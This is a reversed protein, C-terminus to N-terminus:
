TQVREKDAQRKAQEREDEEIRAVFVRMRRVAEPVFLLSSPDRDPKPRPADADPSLRGVDQHGLRSLLNDICLWEDDSLTFRSLITRIEHRAPEVDQHPHEPPLAARALWGGRFQRRAEEHRDLGLWPVADDIFAEDLRQSCDACISPTDDVTLPKGCDCCSGEGGDQLPPDPNERLYQASKARRANALSDCSDWGERFCDCMPGDGLQRPHKHAPHNPGHQDAGDQLPQPPNTIAGEIFDIFEQAEYVSAKGAIVRRKTEEYEAAATDADPLDAERPATTKGCGLCQRNGGTSPHLDPDSCCAEREGTEPQLVGGREGDEYVSMKREPREGTEPHEAPTLEHGRNKVLAGPAGLPAYVPPCSPGHM